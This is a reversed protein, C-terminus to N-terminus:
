QAHGEHGAHGEGNSAENMTVTGEFSSFLALASSDLGAEADKLKAALGAADVASLGITELTGADKLSDGSCLYISWGHHTKKMLARGGRGDQRWGVIAWDAQVVVPAIDLPKDLREFMVKLRAPIAQQPDDAASAMSALLVGALIAIIKKM